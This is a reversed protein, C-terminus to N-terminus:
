QRPPSIWSRSIFGTQRQEEYKYHFFLCQVSRGQNPATLPAQRTHRGRVRGRQWRFMQTSFSVWWFTCSKAETLESQTLDLWRRVCWHTFLAADATFHHRSISPRPWKNPVLKHAESTKLLLKQNINAIKKKKIKGASVSGWSSFPRM